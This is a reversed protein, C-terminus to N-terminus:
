SSSQCSTQKILGLDYFLSVRFDDFFSNFEQRKIRESSNVFKARDEERWQIASESYRDVNARILLAEQRGREVVFAARMLADLKQITSESFIPAYAYFKREIQRKAQIIEDPSMRRWDGVYNFACFLSNLDNSMEDYVEKKWNRGFRMAEIQGELRREFRRIIVGIFVLALPMCLGVILKAVELSNWPQNCDSM